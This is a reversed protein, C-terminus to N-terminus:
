SLLFDKSIHTMEGFQSTFAKEVANALDQRSVPVYGMVSPELGCPRIRKFGDVAEPLYNIAAGHYSVHGDIAMGMSAVKKGSVWIGPEDGVTANFGLSALAGIITGEIRKVYGRVDIGADTELDFIPYIVLQGKGHYTVDGGRETKIVDIGPYNLPDAKRGITYVGPDHELLLLMDPISNTKRESVLSLQLDRCKSYEIYGLDVLLRTTYSSVTVM